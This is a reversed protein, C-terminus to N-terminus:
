RGARTELRLSCLQHQAGLHNIDLALAERFSKEAEASEALGLRALGMLFLSEVRNRKQLDDNFLLLNPLSTAFYDIKAETQMQKSAFDLLSRFERTASVSDGLEALATGRYYTMASYGGCHEAAKRFASRAAEEHGLAAHALGEFYDLHNEPTLLHKGEGLNPPYNQAAEFHRLAEAPKGSELAGDGLLFHAWVYQGSALGEGGEWPHFRRCLLIDLATQPQGLQNYLTARELVLDDRQNVLDLREELLSVRAEPPTCMKKRLQDLEYLLRADTPNVEFARRYADMAKGPEQRVNYYAIGLNRWPISFGPDLGCSEEWCRIAEEHRAKDYFLNGLYYFAKANEPDAAIAAELIQMEELRSPFCYDAPLASARKYCESARLADGAQQCFYGLAYLVMPCVASGGDDFKRLSELLRAADEWLGANSYDFAIDLYTQEQGRTLAAFEQSRRAATGSDGRCAVLLEHRSWFDLPDMDATEQAVSEADDSQGLHRLVAAKLDRAKLNKQNVAISNELHELAARYDRRACAIEALAYCAASQWPQNWAAKYFAAYAEDARGQYKLALGLNYYPEGDYPNPNRQTLREIARRLHDEAQRFEGRRLCRLGLANHSRANLDDRRLAEEYYPEPSRTTQRYQELHLGILFLEESSRAEVPTPPETAARPVPRTERIEPRYRILERGDQTSVILLLDEERTGAPLDVLELVPNGPSLDLVRQFLTKERESLRVVASACRETSWIGIRGQRDGTELNVALHRNANKVPGIEQIPYWYQSFARSEYPQLWSFDPQNDTYVGAMLEVYPGDADTLERDWAHGFEASGWTWLKKGPAIHHDAVHVVGAKRAHDYGGLFDYNSEAVMYSTPVPINKYWRLDVGNSYDVGYYTGHAVPFDIVARKAHDAVYTIDPPFFAQYHENVHVALNAWWLFTQVFPTRNYLRVRAELLAKGPHLTIGVMGKMRNMPEHESLWVTGSGDPHLQILHDVPMFTSPRHHQPWNFEIGGSIWPGLLGVLAPKVVRQRYIFDYGNTKDLGIHVRGGIEPLVMVKLYENELFVAQYSKAVKEDLVRDIFANPYVKGSSGQYVRKELFMPNRDPPGTLYTPIAVAEEWARVPTNKNVLTLVKAFIAHQPDTHTLPVTLKLSM